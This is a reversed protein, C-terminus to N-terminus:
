NAEPLGLIISDAHESFEFSPNQNANLEAKVRSSVRTQVQAFVHDLKDEGHSERLVELLYHTFYGNQLKASEWSQENARSATIV